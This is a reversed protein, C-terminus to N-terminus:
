TRHFPEVSSSGGDLHSIWSPRWAKKTYNTTSTESWQAGGGLYINKRLPYFFRGQLYREHGKRNSVTADNPKKANMYYAEIDGVLKNANLLFGASIEPSPKYGNGVLSPGSYIFPHPIWSKSARTVFAPPAGTYTETAKSPGDHKWGGYPLRTIPEDNVGVTTQGNVAVACSLLFALVFSKM